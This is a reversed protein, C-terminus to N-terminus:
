KGKSGPMKSMERHRLSSPQPQAAPPLSAQHSHDQNPVIDGQHGAMNSVADIM